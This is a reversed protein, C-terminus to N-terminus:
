RATAEGINEEGEKWGTRADTRGSTRESALGDTKEQTPRHRESVSGSPFFNGRTEKETENPNEGSSDWRAEDKKDDRTHTQTWEVARMWEDTQALSCALSRVVFVRARQGSSRKNRHTVQAVWRRSIGPNSSSTERAPDM